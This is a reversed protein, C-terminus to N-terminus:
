RTTLFHLAPSILSRSDVKVVDLIFLMSSLGTQLGPVAVGAPGAIDKIIEIVTHLGDVCTFLLRHKDQSNNSKPALAAKIRRM